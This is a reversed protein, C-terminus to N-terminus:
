LRSLKFNLNNNNVLYYYVLAWDQDNAFPDYFHAKKGNVKNPYIFACSAKGDEFFLCLNNRIINEARKQYSLDETCEAYLSYALASLTSWYHPFVDGWFERKGFWYGDWHRIAIDNLHYSPQLGAFAELLPLQEKAGDLYKQEKTVEYMRLLHIIAPAVISQEYNVESRPYFCGNSLYNDATLRYDSMLSDAESTFQNNKLMSYAKVPIDIAYFGHGFNRYMARMTKYSDMLFQKEGTINFMELYFNAVWPYNYARNRGSHDIRSRTNGDKDQLKRVFNAYKLLSEKIQPDKTRQYQLALFVGMGLRERGEDRDSSSVSPTNNLFIENKENDYVMYAGYRADNKDNMQQHKIIFDARKKLLEEEGSIVFCSIQTRKGKNYNLEFNMEGETISPIQAIIKNGSRQIGMKEGNITVFPHQLAAESEFEVSLIEYKQYVYQKSRGLVTGRKLAQAYFDAEGQHSFIRWSLVYNKKPKLTISEPNLVIVGRTNSMGKERQREKIEYGTVSGSTLVLGLHPARGSMHMANVYAASGGTWIHANTRADFCTKADPYNDNFPTNIEIDTLTVKKKGTNTFTYKELLDGNVPKREVSIRINGAMYIVVTVNGEKKIEIPKQWSFLSSKDPTKITFSGLGWGYHKGIWAYQSGDTSLVWNMNRVDNAISLQKVAGTEDDIVSEINQASSYLSVVAVLAFALLKLNM